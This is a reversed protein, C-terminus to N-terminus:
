NWSIFEKCTSISPNLLRLTGCPVLPIGDRAVKFVALSQSEFDTAEITRREPQYTQVYKSHAYNADVNRALPIRTDHKM